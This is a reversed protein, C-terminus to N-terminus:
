LQGSLESRLYVKKYSDIILELSRNRKVIPDYMGKMYLYQSEAKARKKQEEKLEKKLQSILTTAKEKKDMSKNWKEFLNRYKDEYAKIKENLQEM